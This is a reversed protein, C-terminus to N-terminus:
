KQLYCQRVPSARVAGLHLPLGFSANRELKQVAQVLIEGIANSKGGRACSVLM